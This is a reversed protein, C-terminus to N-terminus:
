FVPNTIYTKFDPKRADKDSIEPVGELYKLWDITLTKDDWIIGGEFEPDYIDDCKYISETNDELALFGHAFGRPVFLMQKNEASLIFGEWKGYTPSNQRLDVVVDYVSGAVVRVLKTQPKRTQFHLGRLVWKKSKSHNDQMFVTDIGIKAFEISSYTEMFFGRSDSFVQPEIIYCDQLTTPIKTFM